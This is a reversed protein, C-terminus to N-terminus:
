VPAAVIALLMECLELPHTVQVDHGADITKVVEFGEARAQEAFAHFGFQECLVFARRLSQDRHDIADVRERHTLIPMPTLHEDVWRADDPDAVGLDAASMPPVLWGNGEADAAAQFDPEAGPMLDFCSQNHHPLLADLYILWAIREPVRQALGTLLMGGYSHGVLVANRVDHEELLQEIQQIHTTLGTEPTASDALEGLGLLTPAIVEHGQKELIPKVRDWCWGGHWSGHLLVFTPTPTTEPL